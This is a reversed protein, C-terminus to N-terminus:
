AEVTTLNLILTGARVTISETIAADTSSGTWRAYITGSTGSAADTLFAYAVAPPNATFPGFVVDATNDVSVPSSGTPADFAVSRRTYGATTLETISSLTDTATVAVTALGLYLATPSTGTNRFVRNLALTAGAQTLSGAM